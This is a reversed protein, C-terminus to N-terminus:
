TRTGSSTRDEASEAADVARMSLRVASLNKPPM